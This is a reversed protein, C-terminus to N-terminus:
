RYGCAAAADNAFECVRELGAVGTGAPIKIAVEKSFDEGGVSGVASLSRVVAVHKLVRVANEGRKVQTESAGDAIALYLTAGSKGIGTPKEITVRLKVRDGNRAADNLKLPLKKGRLAKEVATKAEAGNSGVFESQGDVVLQPTYVGTM